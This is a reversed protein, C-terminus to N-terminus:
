RAFADVNPLTNTLTHKIKLPAQCTDAVDGGVTGSGALTRADSPAEYVGDRLSSATVCTFGVCLRRLRCIGSQVASEAARAITNGDANRTGARVACVSAGAAFEETEVRGTRPGGRTM